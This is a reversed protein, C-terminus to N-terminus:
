SAKKGFLRDLTGASHSESNGIDGIFQNFGGAIPAPLRYKLYGIVVEVAQRAKDEPFGTKQSVLHVIEDM